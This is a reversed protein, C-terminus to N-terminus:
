HFQLNTRPVSRHAHNVMIGTILELPVVKNLMDVVLIRSTVAIIGGM